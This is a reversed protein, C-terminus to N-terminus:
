LKGEKPDLQVTPNFGLGTWFERVLHIAEESTHRLTVLPMQKDEADLANTLTDAKRLIAICKDARYTCNALDAISQNVSPTAFVTRPPAMRDMLCFIELKSELEDPVCDIALDATRLADEVKSVFTVRPLSAENLMTRLEEQAHRLNLPM